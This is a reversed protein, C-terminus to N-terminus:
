HGRHRKAYTQRNREAQSPDLYGYQELINIQSIGSRAHPSKLGYNGDFGPDIQDPKSLIHILGHVGKGIYPTVVTVIPFLVIAVENSPAIFSYVIGTSVGVTVDVRNPKLAELM